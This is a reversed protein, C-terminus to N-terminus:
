DFVTQQELDTCLIKLAKEMLEYRQKKQTQPDANPDHMPNPIGYSTLIRNVGGSVSIPTMSVVHVVPIGSKEIQRVMM